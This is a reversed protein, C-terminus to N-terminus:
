EDKLVEKYFIEINDKFEELSENNDIYYDYLYDQVGSDATNSELQDSMNDREIFITYIEYGEKGKYYDVFKQIDVSRRSHICYICNKEKEPLYDVVSNFPFDNYEGTVDILDALLKRGKADKEGDWGFITALNKIRDAMGYELIHTQTIKRLLTVFTNKGSQKFGNIILIHNM